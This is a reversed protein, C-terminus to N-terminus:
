TGWCGGIVLPINCSDIKATIEDLFILSLSHDAPGCVVMFEWLANLRKHYVVMSAWFFGHEFAVFDFM